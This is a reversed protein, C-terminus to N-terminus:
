HEVMKNKSLADQLNRLMNQKFSLHLIIFLYEFENNSVRFIDHCVFFVSSFIFLLRYFVVGVVLIQAVEVEVIDTTIEFAGSLILLVPEVHSLQRTKWTWVCWLYIATIVCDLFLSPITIIVFSLYPSLYLLSM